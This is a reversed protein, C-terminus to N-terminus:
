ARKLLQRWLRINKVLSVLIFAFTCPIVGQVNAKIAKIEKNIKGSWQVSLQKKGDMM